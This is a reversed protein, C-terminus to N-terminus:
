AGLQNIREVFGHALALQSCAGKSENLRSIINCRQSFWADDLVQIVDITCVWPDPTPQGQKESPAAAPTKSEAAAPPPSSLPLGTIVDVGRKLRSYCRSCKGPSPLRVHDRHCLNCHGLPNTSMTNEKKAPKAPVAAAAKTSETLPAAPVAAKVVPTRFLEWSCLICKVREPGLIDAPEHKLLGNCKPCTPHKASMDFSLIWSSAPM